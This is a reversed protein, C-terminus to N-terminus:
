VPAKGRAILRMRKAAERIIDRAELPGDAATDDIIAECGWTGEYGSATLKGHVETWEAIGDGPLLHEDKQGHNDHFHTCIVRESYRELLVRLNGAVTAHGVDLCLGLDPFVELLHENILYNVPRSLNEVAVLVGLGKAMGLLQEIVGAIREKAMELSVDVPLEKGIAHVVMCHAKTKAVQELAFSLAGAAIGRLGPNPDCLSPLDAWPSHFWDVALGYSEWVQRIRAFDRNFFMMSERIGQSPNVHTFGEEAILRLREEM